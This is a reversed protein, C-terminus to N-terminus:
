GARWSRPATSSPAGPREGAARPRAAGRRSRCRARGIAAQELAPPAVGADRDGVDVADAFGGDARDRQHRRLRGRQALHRDSARDRVGLGVDEVGGQPRGRATDDALEEEAAEAHRLAIEVPGLEGGLAEQGVRVSRWAAAEVAGPIQGAPKRRAREVQDPADVLLHLDAAVADLEALDLGVQGLVRADQLRRDAGAGVAM